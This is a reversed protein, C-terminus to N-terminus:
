NTMPVYALAEVSRAVIKEDAMPASKLAEVNLVTSRKNTMPVSKLPEKVSRAVIKEDAMPASKVAEVILVTSRINTIPVYALAEVSRAIIKEDAMPACQLKKQRPNPNGRGKRPM